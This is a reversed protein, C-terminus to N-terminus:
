ASGTGAPGFLDSDAPKPVKAAEHQEIWAQVERAVKLYATSPTKSDEQGPRYTRWIRDRLAKPLKFWHAQCGWQAPKVQHPCGPWHCHHDGTWRAHKVHAVKEAITTM